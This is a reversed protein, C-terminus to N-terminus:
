KTPVLTVNFLSAIKKIFEETLPGTHRDLIKGEASIVFTEPVGYVGLEIAVRGTHDAATKEYPNGLRGLFRTAAEARDKYNLGYIPVANEQLMMLDPHEKRCPACWSAWVNLLSPRGQKLDESSFGEEGDVLGALAFEPLPRDQLATPLDSPDGKQLGLVFLGILAAFGLIPFYSLFKQGLRM